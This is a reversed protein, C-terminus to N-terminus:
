MRVVRRGNRKFSPESGSSIRESEMLNSSRGDVSPNGSIWPRAVYRAIELIPAQDM